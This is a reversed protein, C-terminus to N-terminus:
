KHIGKMDRLGSPVSFQGNRHAPDIRHRPIRPAPRPVQLKRLAAERKATRRDRRKIARLERTAFHWDLLTSIAIIVIWVECYLKFGQSWTLSAFWTVLANIM